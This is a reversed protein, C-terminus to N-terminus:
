SRSMCYSEYMVTSIVFVLFVLFSLLLDKLNKNSIIIANPRFLILTQKNGDQINGDM